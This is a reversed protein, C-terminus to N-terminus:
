LEKRENKHDAISCANPSGYEILGVDAPDLTITGDELFFAPIGVDGVEKSHDFASNTDRLRTFVGMNRINEGINIYEFEDGRGDIQKHIYDCYPCTPM